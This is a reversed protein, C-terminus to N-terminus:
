VQLTGSGSGVTMWFVLKREHKEIEIAKLLNIVFESMRCSVFEKSSYPLTKLRRNTGGIYRSSNSAILENHQDFVHVSNPMCVLNSVAYLFGETLGYKECPLLRTHPTLM